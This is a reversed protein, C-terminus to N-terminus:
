AFTLQLCYSFYIILLNIIKFNRYNYIFITINKIRCFCKYNSHFLYCKDLLLIITWVIWYTIKKCFFCDWREWFWAINRFWNDRWFSSIIWIQHLHFLLLYLLLFKFIYFSILSSARFFLFLFWLSLGSYLFFLFKVRVSKSLLWYIQYFFLTILNFLWFLWYFFYLLLFNLYPL